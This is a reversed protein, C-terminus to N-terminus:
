DSKGAGSDTGAPLDLLVLVFQTKGDQPDDFGVIHQHRKSGAKLEFNGSGSHFSGANINNGHNQEEACTLGQSTVAPTGVPSNNKCTIVDGYRGLGKRYFDTVKDQSDSTQYSAVKVRLAWQGFGLQVDASQHQDSKVATAGPYAPFGLDEATLPNTNVHVGGFPTDVQVKQNDGSANQDVHVRCGAMGAVLVLCGAWATPKRMANRTM